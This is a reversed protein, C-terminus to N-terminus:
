MEKLVLFGKEDNMGTKLMKSAVMWKLPDNARTFSPVQFYDLITEERKFIHM